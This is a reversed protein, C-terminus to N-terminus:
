EGRVKALLEKADRIVCNNFAICDDNCDDDCEDRDLFREVLHLLQGALETSRNENM